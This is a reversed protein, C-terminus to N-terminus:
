PWRPDTDLANQIAMVAAETAAAKVDAAIVNSADVIALTLNKKVELDALEAADAPRGRRTLLAIRDSANAQANMLADSRAPKGWIAAIRNAVQENIQALAGRRASRLRREPSHCAAEAPTAPRRRGNDNIIVVPEPTSM